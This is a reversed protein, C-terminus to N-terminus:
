GSHESAKVEVQRLIISELLHGDVQGKVLYDQAGHALAEVAKRRDEMGALIIIPIFPEHARVVRLAKLDESDPLNLDLLVIDPGKRLEELASFLNSAHAIEFRVPKISALMLRLFALDHVNEEVILVRITKESRGGLLQDRTWAAYAAPGASFQRKAATERLIAKILEAPKIRSTVFHNRVGLSMIKLVMRPNDLRTLVIVPVDPAATSARSLTEIVHSEPLGLALLLVDIEQSKLYDLGSELNGAQQVHFCPNESAGLMQGVQKAEALNDEVLLVHIAEKRMDEFGFPPIRRSSLLWHSRQPFWGPMVSLSCIRPKSRAHWWPPSHSATKEGDTDRFPAELLSPLM